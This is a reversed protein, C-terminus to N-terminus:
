VGARVWELFREVGDVTNETRPSHMLEFAHEAGPLELYAVPADSAARLRESFLRGMEVPALSDGSGHIVFFPPADKRVHKIPSALDWLEPNEAPDAHIVRDKMFGVFQDAFARDVERGLFDYVGYFPVCAQVSTDTAPHSQQFRPDNETLGMLATLHGGASGGTVAVFSTDMGYDKGHERIWCLAAKCDELHAPFGVSPSLRYNVAVCIWGHAAMQYMLPLAQQEKQGMIWAGGHIQMLVPCGQGPRVRPRYVDLRQRIGGGPVYAIDRIVEVEPHGFRFPHRWDEFRVETRLRQRVPAPIRARYDNGLEKCLAAEVLAASQRHQWVHWGLGAIALAMISLGLSGAFGAGAGALAFVLFLVSQLPLWIWALETGLLGFGFTVWPSVPLAFRRPVFVATLFAIDVFVFFALLWSM